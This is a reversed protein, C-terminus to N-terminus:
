AAQTLAAALGLTVAMLAVEVGAWRLVPMRGQRLRRRALGGLGALGTVCVAKAIVLLGYGSTVLAAASPLRLAANLVGSVAVAALCGGALTSFRPLVAERLRPRPAALLLVAALGGVWLAAGAVHLAVTVVALQHDPSTGAHGTVAPTLVGLLACVLVIRPAVADPRVLRTVACGATAVACAATLLIGRGAAVQTAFAAVQGVDIGSVPRGFAEATRFVLGLGVFALWGGAAAVTARDTTALVGPLERPPRPHGLPLLTAALGLGVCAIGAVDAGARTAAVAVLVPLPTATPGGTLAAAAVAVALALVAWVAPAGTGTVASRVNV